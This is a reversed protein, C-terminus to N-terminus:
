GREGPISVKRPSGRKLSTRPRMPSGGYTDGGEGDQWSKMGQIPGYAKALM